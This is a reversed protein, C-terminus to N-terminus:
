RTWNAYFQICISKKKIKYNSIDLNTTNAITPIFEKDINLGLIKKNLILIELDISDFYKGIVRTKSTM